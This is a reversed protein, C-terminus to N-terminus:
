SDQQEPPPISLVSPESSSRHTKKKVRIVKPYLKLCATQGEADKRRDMAVHIVFQQGVNKINKMSCWVSKIM